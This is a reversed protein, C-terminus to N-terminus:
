MISPMVPSFILLVSTTSFAERQSQNFLASRHILAALTCASVQDDSAPNGTCLYRINSFVRFVRHGWTVDSIIHGLKTDSSIASWSLDRKSCCGGAGEWLCLPSEYCSWHTYLHKIQKMLTWVIYLCLCTACVKLVIIYHTCYLLYINTVNSVGTSFM